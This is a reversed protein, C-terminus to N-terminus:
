KEVVSSVVSRYNVHEGRLQVLARAPPRELGFRNLDLHAQGVGWPPRVEIELNVEEGGNLSVRVQQRGLPGGPNWYIFDLGEKGLQLGYVVLPRGAPQPSLPTEPSPSQQWALIASAVLLVPIWQGNRM